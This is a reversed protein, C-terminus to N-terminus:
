NGALGFRHERYYKFNEWSSNPPVLHDCHPIYGGESILWDMVRELHEKNRHTDGAVGIKM